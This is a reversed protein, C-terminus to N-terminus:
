QLPLVKGEINDGIYIAFKGYKYEDMYRKLMSDTASDIVRDWPIDELSYFRYGQPAPGDAGGRYCVVHEKTKLDEYIAFLFDISVSLKKDKLQKILSSLGTKSDSQGITPLCYQSTQEDHQLLVTGNKELIVGIRVTSIQSAMDVLTQELGLSFYGGGAYGLPQGNRYGYNKIRGILVVHDGADVQQELACEFWALAGDILPMGYLGEHWPTIDFKDHRQTAFLGSTDKQEQALVNIAFGRSELFVSLSAARKDICVLLLPPDLSVSTFSNATFGRPTSDSQQTTVVTVGTPFKSFATRLDLTDIVPM